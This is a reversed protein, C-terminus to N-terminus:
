NKLCFVAYSIRMISQLESTHEESRENPLDGVLKAKHLTIWGRVAAVLAQNDQHGAEADRLAQSLEDFKWSAFTDHQHRVDYLMAEVEHPLLMRRQNDGLLQQCLGPVTSIEPAADIAAAELQSTINTRLAAAIVRNFAVILVKKGEVGAGDPHVLRLVRRTLGFTKGTGPGAEVRIVPADVNILPLVQDGHVGNNWPDSTGNM